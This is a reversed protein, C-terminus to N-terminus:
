PMTGPDLSPLRTTTIHGNHITIIYNTICCCVWDDISRYANSTFPRAAAPTNNDQAQM